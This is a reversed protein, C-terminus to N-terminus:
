RVRPMMWPEGAIAVIASIIQHRTLTSAFIGVSVYAAGLLVMGLYASRAVGPDPRGYAIMLGLFTLTTALLAVYFAMVGVFKGLIVETDSQTQFRHGKTELETRLEKFNYTAYPDPFAKFEFSEEAFTQMRWGPSGGARDGFVVTIKGGSAKAIAEAVPLAKRSLESLDTLLLINKFHPKGESGSCM